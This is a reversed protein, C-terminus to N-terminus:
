RSNRGDRRSIGSMTRLCPVDIRLLIPLSILLLSMSMPEGHSSACLLASLRSM